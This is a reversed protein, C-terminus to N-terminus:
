LDGLGDIATFIRSELTARVDPDTPGMACWSVLIERAEARPEMTAGGRMREALRELQVRRRLDKASDPSATGAVLEARVALIRAAEGNGARVDADAPQQRALAADLRARMADRTDAPLALAAFSAALADRDTAGDEVQACIAAAERLATLTARGAARAATRQAERVREIARDFAREDWRERPPPGRDRGRPRADRRGDRSGRGGRDNRDNREGRRDRDGAQSERPLARWRQSLAAVRSDGHAAQAPDSGLTELEALIARAETESASRAEAEAARQAGAKEFFPNVLARLEQWLADDVERSARGLRKFEAQAHTSKDIAEALPARATERRLNAILKRKAAEVEGERGARVVDFKALMARLRRGQEGRVRPDLEDLRQLAEVVRRRLAPAARPDAALEREADALLTDVEERKKGRLERRKEFYKRTPAMARHCVGRFRRAIGSPAADPDLAESEDLRQWALQAGKVKAAVADPHLDTGALAEIETCLRARVKNNSWHQWRALKEYAERVTALRAALERGPDRIDALAANARRAEALKGEGIARELAAVAVALAEREARRAERAAGAAEARAQAAQAAAIAEATPEPAADVVAPEVAPPEPEVTPPEPEVAVPEPEVAALPPEPEAALVPGPASGFAAFYGDVRRALTADVRGSLTSWEVALADRRAAHGDPRERRLADLEECMAMARERLTAPDGAALKLSELRARANRALVKDAKRAGEAIRALTAPADIRSLLWLRIDPDPDRQCRDVLLGPRAVRELAARRLTAEGAAVAVHALVDQDHEVHLVRIREPEGRAPDALLDKYRQRAADRVTGDDDHRMRDALLALDDLRGVAARRVDPSEDARALDALHSEIEALPAAAVARARASPDRSQWGPKRRLPNLKM